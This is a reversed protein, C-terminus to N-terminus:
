INMKSDRLKLKIVPISYLKKYLDIDNVFKVSDRYKRVEDDKVSQNDKDRQLNIAERALNSSWIAAFAAIVTAIGSIITFIATIKNWDALPPPKIKSM